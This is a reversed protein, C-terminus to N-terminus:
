WPDKWKTEGRKRKLNKDVPRDSKAEKSSKALKIEEDLEGAKKMLDDLVEFKLDGFDKEIRQNMDFGAFEKNTLADAEENQGRPVWGLELELGLKQLQVSLEM